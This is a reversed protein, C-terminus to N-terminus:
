KGQAAKKQAKLAKATLVAQWVVFGLSAVGGVIGVITNARTLNETSIKM